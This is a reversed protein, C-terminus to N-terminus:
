EVDEKLYFCSFNKGIIEEARYGKIREAGDNWSTIKGTTDMSFISYDKVSEVMLRFREQSTRFAEETKVRRAVETLLGQNTKRLEATREQVRMELEDKALRLAEQARKREAIERRLAEPSPLALARPM